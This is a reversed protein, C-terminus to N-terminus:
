SKSQYERFMAISGTRAIERIGFPELLNLIATIKEADGTISITFHELGVDVVQGRFIDTVRLLAARTERKANVKQRVLRREVVEQDTLDSV